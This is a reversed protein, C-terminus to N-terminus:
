SNLMINLMREDHKDLVDNGRVIVAMLSSAKLLYYILKRVASFDLERLTARECM